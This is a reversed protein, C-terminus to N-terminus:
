EGIKGVNLLGDLPRAAHRVVSGRGGAVARRPARPRDGPRPVLAVGAARSGDLRLAGGAGPLGGDLAVAGRGADGRQAVLRGASRTPRSRPVPAPGRDGRRGGGRAAVPPRPRTEGGGVARLAARRSAHGDGRPRDARGEAGRRLDRPGAPRRLPGRRSRGGGVRPRPRPSRRLWRRQGCHARVPRRRPADGRHRADGARRQRGRRSAGRVVHAGRPPWGGHGAHPVVWPHGDHQGRDPRRRPAGDDDCLGLGVPVPRRGRARDRHRPRGFLVPYVSELVEVDATRLGSRRGALDRVVDLGDRDVGAPSGGTVGDLLTFLVRQGDANVFSWRTTGQADYLPATLPLSSRSSAALALQVCYMAASVVALTCDMHAAGIPAPPRSDLITGPTTEIDIADFISHTLPLDRAVFNLLTPALSARVIYPKSNVFHPIQPPAGTLDFLLSGDRVVLTCPFRYLEDGVEAWGTSTYTGPELAALRRRFEAGTTSDLMRAWDRFADLGIERLLEKLKEQAVHGGIVLSRMDMEILDFSRVNTRFVEWMDECEVGARFLRVSPFRLAEQYCETAKTASSGPVMGGMDLMHASIAVWAVLAGDFFVPRQVMVDQPHMGGDSHPDNAIFVDGDVISPGHRDITCRVAHMAAGAHGPIASAGRIFTGTADFISVSWDKTETVIPSIATNEIAAGAEEGIAELRTRFIEVMIPDLDLQRPETTTM